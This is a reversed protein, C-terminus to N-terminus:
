RLDIIVKPKRNGTPMLLKNLEGESIFSINPTVRIKSRLGESLLLLFDDSQNSSSVKVHVNDTGIKNTSIEVIHGNVENFGNLVEQIALPFFTTGKYKIMQQKRGIVSGIRSSARGCTCKESHKHVIDGTKYRLLPMGQVGLTTITLEGMKGQQIPLNNEDLIETIILEPHEHGGRHAECETFATSMETSAYTSFLEIDWKENIRKSLTLPSFDQNRLPEGICIAAVPSTNNLEIGREEARQILKLLFSPVTILFKPKNSIISDLQFDPVGAGARIVGAGLNRLGLFYALGAMFRRDITTMLQVVDGPQIGACSFSIAENYALRELDSENLIFNIPAGVTGSTSSYDIIEHKPVCIFDQNFLQLDSKTTTPFVTLDDLTKIDQPHIDLEAFMKKYFPSSYYLYNLQEQLKEEQFARIKVLDTFEIDSKM